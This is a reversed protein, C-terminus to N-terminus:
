FLGPMQVSSLASAQDEDTSSYQIGAHAIKESIENLEQNQKEAAEKFRALAAQTAVGAMGQLDAHLSGATAEVQAEVAKLEASIREFEAAGAALGETDTTLAM